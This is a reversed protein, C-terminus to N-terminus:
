KKKRKAPPPPPSTTEPEMPTTEDAEPSLRKAKPEHIGHPKLLALLADAEQRARATEVKALGIALYWFKERDKPSVADPDSGLEQVLDRDFKSLKLLTALQRWTVGTTLPTGDDRVLTRGILLHFVGRLRGAALRQDRILELVTRPGDM